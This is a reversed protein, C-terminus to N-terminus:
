EEWIITSMMDFMKFMQCETKKSDQQVCGAYTTCKDSYQCVSEPTKLKVPQYTELTNM